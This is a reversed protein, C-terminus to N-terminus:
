GKTQYRGLLEYAKALTVSAVLGIAILLAIEKGAVSTNGLFPINHGPGMAFVLGALAMATVGRLTRLLAWGELAGVLIAPVFLAFVFRVILENTTGVLREAMVDVVPPLMQALVIAPALTTAMLAFGALINWRAAPFRRRIEAYSWGVALGGLCAFPAGAPLIFWIPAIWFCHITLFILLGVEGSIAGAILASRVRRTDNLQTADRVVSSTM